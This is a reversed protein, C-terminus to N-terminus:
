RQPEAAQLATLRQSAPAAGASDRAGVGTSRWALLHSVILMRAGKKSHPSEDGSKRECGSPRIAVRWKQTPRGADTM